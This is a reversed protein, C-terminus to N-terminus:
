AIARDLIADIGSEKHIFDLIHSPLEKNKLAIKLPSSSILFVKKNKFFSPIYAAVEMGNLRRLQFDILITDYDKMKVFFGMHDLSEFHDINIGRKQGQKCILEGFVPDDDIVLVKM